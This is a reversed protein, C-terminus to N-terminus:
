PQRELWQFSVAWVGDDFKGESLLSLRRLALQLVARDGTGARVLAHHALLMHFRAEWCAASDVEQARLVRGWLEAARRFEAAGEFHQAGAPRWLLHGGAALALARLTSTTRTDASEPAHVRVALGQAERWRAHAEGDQGAAAAELALAVAARLAAAELSSAGQAGRAPFRRALELAASLQGSDEELNVAADWLVADSSAVLAAALCRRLQERVAANEQTVAGSAGWAGLAKHALRQRAETLLAVPVAAAALAAVCDEAAVLDPGALAEDCRRVLAETESPRAPEPVVAAAEGHTARLLAQLKERAAAALPTGQAAAFAALQRAEPAGRALAARAADLAHQQALWRNGAAAYLEALITSCAEREATSSRQRQVTLEIAQERAEPWHLAKAAFNRVSDIPVVHNAALPVIRHAARVCTDDIALAQLLHQLAAPVRGLLLAADACLLLLPGRAASASNGLSRECRELCIQLLALDAAASRLQVLLAAEALAAVAPELTQGALIRGLIEDCLSAASETRGSHLALRALLVHGRLAVLLAESDAEGVRLVLEEAAATLEAEKGACAMGDELAQVEGELRRLEATNCLRWDRLRTARPANDLERLVRQLQSRGAQLAEEAARRAAGAEAASVGVGEADKWFSCALWQQAEARQVLVERAAAPDVARLAEINRETAALWELLKEREGRLLTRRAAHRASRSAEVRVDPAQRADGVCRLLVEWGLDAYGHVLLANGFPVDSVQAGIVSRLVFLFLAIRCFRTM